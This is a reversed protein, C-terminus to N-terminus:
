GKALSGPKFGSEPPSSPWLPINPAANWAAPMKREPLAQADAPVSMMQSLAVMGGAAAIFRRRDLSSPPIRREETVNMRVEQPSGLLALRQLLLAAISQSILAAHVPNGHFM